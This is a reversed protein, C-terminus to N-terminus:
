LSDVRCNGNMCGWFVLPWLGLIFTQFIFTRKLLLHNWTGASVNKPPICYYVKGDWGILQHHLVPWPVLCDKVPFIEGVFCFGVCFFRGCFHGDRRLFGCFFRWCFINGDRGLGKGGGRRQYLIFEPQSDHIRFGVVVDTPVSGGAVSVGAGCWRPLGSTTSLKPNSPNQAYKSSWGM